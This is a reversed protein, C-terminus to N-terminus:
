LEILYGDPHHFDPRGQPHRASWYCLRGSDEEVVAALALRPRPHLPGGLEFPLAVNVDLELNHPTQRVSIDPERPLEVPTMGERYTSFRYAAWQKAASFNLEYYGHSDDPRIFAEFCTHKWLGDTRGPPLAGAVPVRIHPMDGQLSYHVSLLDPRSLAVQAQLGRVVTSPTTDHAILAIRQPM